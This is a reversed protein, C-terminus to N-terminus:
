RLFIAARAAPLAQRRQPLRGGAGPRFFQWSHPSCRRAAALSLYWAPLSAPIFYPSLDASDRRRDARIRLSRLRSAQTSDPIHERQPLFLGASPPDM